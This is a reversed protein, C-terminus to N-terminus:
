ENEQSTTDFEAPIADDGLDQGMSDDVAPEYMEQMDPIETQSTDQPLDIVEKIEESSTEDMPQTEMQTEVPTVEVPELPQFGALQESNPDIEETNRPDRLKIKAMASYISEPYIAVVQEYARAAVEIQNLKAYM